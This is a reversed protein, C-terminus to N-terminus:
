VDFRLYLLELDIGRMEQSLRSMSAFSVCALSFLKGCILYQHAALFFSFSADFKAPGQNFDPNWVLAFCAFYVFPQVVLQEQFNIM